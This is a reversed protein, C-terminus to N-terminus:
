PLLEVLAHVIAAAGAVVLVVGVWRNRAGRVTAAGAVLCGLGVLLEVVYTLAGAMATCPLVARGRARESITGGMSTEIM